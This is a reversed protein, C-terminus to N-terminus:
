QRSLIGSLIGGVVAGLCSIIGGAIAGLCSIMACILPVDLNPIRVWALSLLLGVTFGVVAGGLFVRPASAIPETPLRSRVHEQPLQRGFTIDEVHRLADRCDKLHEM